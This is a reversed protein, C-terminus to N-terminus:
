QIYVKKLFEQLRQSNPKKFIKNPSGSEVFHGHELFIIHDSIEHVFSMEHSVIVMTTNKDKLNRIVHLVEEVMEPDLASTPEDFLLVKPKIALSRAIAVRQKQGGSLESPYSNLKDLMGVKDLLIKAENVCDSRNRGQVHVPAEIINELVNLHPFLNFHQFVMGFNLRFKNLDTDKDIMKGNFLYEGEFEELFNLCRILTSKGSGSPGIISTVEGRRLKFDVNKLVKLDDFCKNLNKVELINDFNLM